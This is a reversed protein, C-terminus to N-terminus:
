EDPKRVKEKQKAATGSNKNEFNLVAPFLNGYIAWEVALAAARDIEESTRTYIDATASLSSHGLLKQALKLKGCFAPFRSGGREPSVRL